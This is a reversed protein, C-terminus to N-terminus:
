IKTVFKYDTDTEVTSQKGNVSINYTEKPMGAQKQIYLKYDSGKVVGDPL